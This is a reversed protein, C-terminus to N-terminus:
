NYHYNSNEKVSSIVIKWCYWASLKLTLPIHPLMEAADAYPTYIKWNIPHQYLTAASLSAVSGLNELPLTPTM